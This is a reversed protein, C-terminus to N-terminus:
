VRYRAGEADLFCPEVVRLRYKRGQTPSTAIIEKGVHTTGGQLLGLAIAKGVSKSFTTSTVHGRGHGQVVDDAFFLISGNSPPEHADVAELGVLTPRNDRALHPSHRLADGWFSKTKSAMKGAGLDDLTTRGDMESGVVHGKEIRLSGLAELGYPRMQWPKGAEMVHEWVALGHHTPTFIEYALEGSFTLRLIRLAVGELAGSGQTDLVGMFPLATNSLDLHPFAAQLTDRARPGAVSMAAWQDTVSAVTVRLTPWVVQLLFELHSM